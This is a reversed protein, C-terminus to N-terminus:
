HTICADIMKSTLMKIIEERPIGAHSDVMITVSCPEEDRIYKPPKNRDGEEVLVEHDFRLKYREIIYPSVNDIQRGIYDDM